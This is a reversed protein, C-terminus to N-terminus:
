IKQGVLLAEDRFGRALDGIRGEERYVVVRLTGFLALLENPLLLYAPNGPGAAAVKERIFTQYFLLGGPKLAAVLFPALSRELFRSVVVVDFAAPPPPLRVVDRVETRISVGLGATLTDLQAMAVASIDCAHTEMGRRALFLANGGRGAALDLARGSAPLLHANEALVRAPEPPAGAAAARYIRDWKERIQEDAM